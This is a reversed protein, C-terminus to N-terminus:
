NRRSTQRSNQEALAIMQRQWVAAEACRGLEALALTVIVGHQPLGTTKYGQAFRLSRTGSRLDNQPSTALLFALTAATDINQPFRAHSKELLNLARAHQKARELLAVSQLMQAKM